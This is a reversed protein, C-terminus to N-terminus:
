HNATPAAPESTRGGAGPETAIVAGDAHNRRHYEARHRHSPQDFLLIMICTRHGIAELVPLVPM